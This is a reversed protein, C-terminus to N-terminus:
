EETSSNLDINDEGVENEDNTLKAFLLKELREAFLSKGLTFYLGILIVGSVHALSLPLEPTCAKVFIVSLLILIMVYVSLSIVKAPITKM